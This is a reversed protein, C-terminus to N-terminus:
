QSLRLPLLSLFQQERARQAQYWRLLSQRRRHLRLHHHLVLRDQLDLPAPHVQLLRHRPLRRDLHGLLGQLGPLDQLDRLLLLRRRGKLPLHHLLHGKLLHLLLPEQLDHLEHLVQLHLLPMRPLRRHDEMRPHRHHDLHFLLLRRHGQLPLVQRTQRRLARDGLLLRHDRDDRTNLILM